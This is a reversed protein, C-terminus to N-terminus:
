DAQITGSTLENLCENFFFGSVKPLVILWVVNDASGQSVVRLYSLFVQRALDDNGPCIIPQVVVVDSSLVSEITRKFAEREPFQQYAPNASKTDFYCDDAELAQQMDKSLRTLERQTSVIGHRALEQREDLLRKLRPVVGSLSEAPLLGLWDLPELLHVQKRSRPDYGGHVFVQRASNLFQDKDGLFRIM